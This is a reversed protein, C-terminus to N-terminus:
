IGVGEPVKDYSSTGYPNIFIIIATSQAALICILYTCLIHVYYYIDM